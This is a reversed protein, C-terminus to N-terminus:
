LHHMTSPKFTVRFFNVMKDKLKRFVSSQMEPYFFTLLLSCKYILWLSLECNYHITAWCHSFGLQICPVQTSKTKVSVIASRLLFWVRYLASLCWHVSSSMTCHILACPLSLFLFPFVITGAEMTAQALFRQRSVAAHQVAGCRSTQRAHWLQARETETRKSAPVSSATNAAWWWM